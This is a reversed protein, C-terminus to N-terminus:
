VVEIFIGGAGGNSISAIRYGKRNIFDNADKITITNYVCINKCIIYYM